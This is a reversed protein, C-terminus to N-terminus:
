GGAKHFFELNCSNWPMHRVLVLQRFQRPKISVIKQYVGVTTPSFCMARKRLFAPPNRVILFIIIIQPNEMDILLTNVIRLLSISNMLSPKIKLCRFSESFAIRSLRDYDYIMHSRKMIFVVRGIHHFKDFFHHPIIIHNAVRVLRSLLPSKTVRYNMSQLRLLPPIQWFLWSTYDNKRLRSHLFGVPPNEKM